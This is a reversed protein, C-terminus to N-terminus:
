VPAPGTILFFGHIITIRHPGGAQSHQSERVFTLRVRPTATFAGEPGYRARLREDVHSVSVALPGVRELGVMVAWPHGAAYEGSVIREVGEDVYDADTARDTADLYKCELCLYDGRCGLQRAFLIRIDLRRYRVVIGEAANTIPLEPQHVIDYRPSGPTADRASEFDAALQRTFRPELVRVEGLVAVTAAIARQLTLLVTRLVQPQVKYFVNPLAKAEESFYHGLTSV